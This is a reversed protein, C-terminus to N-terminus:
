AQMEPSSGSGGKRCRILKLNSWSGSRGNEPPAGTNGVGNMAPFSNATQSLLPVPVSNRRHHVLM